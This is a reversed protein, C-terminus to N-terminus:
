QALDDGCRAAPLEVLPLEAQLPPLDDPFNLVAFSGFLRRAERDYVRAAAEPSAFWGLNLTVGLNKIAAKYPKGGRSRDYYVGRYGSAASRSQRNVANEQATASITVRWCRMFSEEVTSASTKM